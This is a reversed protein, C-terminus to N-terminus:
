LCINYLVQNSMFHTIQNERCSKGSINRMRFLISRSIIMFTYQNELLTDTKRTM